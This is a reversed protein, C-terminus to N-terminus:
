SQLCCEQVTHKRCQPWIKKWAGKPIKAPFDGRCQQGYQNHKKLRKGSWFKRASKRSDSPVKHLSRCSLRGCWIAPGDRPFRLPAGLSSLM